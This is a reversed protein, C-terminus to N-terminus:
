VKARTIKSGIFEKKKLDWKIDDKMLAQNFM